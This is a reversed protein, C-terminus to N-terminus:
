LRFLKKMLFVKNSASKSEWTACLSDWLEKTTKHGMITFFISEALHLRITAKAKKDMLTWQADTHGSNEQREFLPDLLGKNTLVDMMREKWIIFNTGDFKKIYYEQKESGESDM